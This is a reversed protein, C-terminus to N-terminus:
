REERCDETIHIATAHVGLEQGVKKYTSQKCMELLEEDNPWVIKTRQNFLSRKRGDIPETLEVNLHQHPCVGKNISKGLNCNFCLVQLDDRKDERRLKLYWGITAPNKMGFVELRDKKGDNNVHDITLFPIIKEGCCACCGGYKTIVEHKVRLRYQQMKSKNAKAFEATRQSKLKLCDDCGKKTELAPQKGCYLCLGDSERRAWLKKRSTTM